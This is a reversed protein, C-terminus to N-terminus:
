ENSKIEEIYEKDNKRKKVFIIILVVCIISILTLLFAVIVLNDNLALFEDNLSFDYLGHLFWPIGFSLLGYRKKKTKLMKAYFYGMIFGYGMHGLTIGRILMTIPNSGIAFTVSEILEFGIGIITMIITLNFISYKYDNKKILRKFLIFKILEESFALVVIKYYMQYALENPYFYHAIRGIIFFTASTLIIPLVAFIGKLLSKKCLEKYKDENFISKLWKYFIICPVISVIISIIFLGM